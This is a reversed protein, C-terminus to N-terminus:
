NFNSGCRALFGDDVTAAKLNEIMWHLQVVTNNEALEKREEEHEDSDPDVYGQLTLIKNILLAKNLM